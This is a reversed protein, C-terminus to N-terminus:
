MYMHCHTYTRYMVLRLVFTRFYSSSVVSVVFSSRCVPTSFGATAEFVELKLRSSSTIRITVHQLLNTQQSPIFADVARISTTCTCGERLRAMLRAHAHHNRTFINKRRFNAVPGDLEYLFGTLVVGTLGKRQYMGSLRSREIALRKRASGAAWLTNRPVTPM